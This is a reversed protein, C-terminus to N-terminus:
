KKRENERIWALLNLAEDRVVEILPQEANLAAKLLEVAVKKKSKKGKAIYLKALEVGAEPYGAVLARRLWFEAREDNRYIDRYSLGINHAATYKSDGGHSYAKKYCELARASDVEVGIGHDYFYGLSCYAVGSGMEAAKAMTQFGLRPNGNDVYEHALYFLETGDNHEEKSELKKM